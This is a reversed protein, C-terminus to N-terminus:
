NTEKKFRKLIGLLIFLLAIVRLFFGTDFAKSIVFNLILLVLCGVLLIKERKV